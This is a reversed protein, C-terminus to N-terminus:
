VRLNMVKNVFARLHVRVQPLLIWKLGGIRIEKLDMKINDEWMHRSKGVSIKGEPGVVFGRYVGRGEALAHWM